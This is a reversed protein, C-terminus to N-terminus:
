LTAAIQDVRALMSVAFREDARAEELETILVKLARKTALDDLDATDHKFRDLVEACIRAYRNVPSSRVM